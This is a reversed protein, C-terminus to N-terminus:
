KWEGSGVRKKLKKGKVEYIVECNDEKDYTVKVVSGGKIIGQVEQAVAMGTMEFNSMGAAGEIKSGTFKELVQYQANLIAARKASERRAIKNTITRTAMASAALRYTNADVWVETRYTETGEDGLTGGPNGTKCSSFSAAIGMILILTFIQLKKM